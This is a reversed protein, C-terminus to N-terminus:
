IPSAVVLTIVLHSHFYDYATVALSQVEGNGDSLLGLVGKSLQPMFYNYLFM